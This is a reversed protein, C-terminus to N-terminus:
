SDLASGQPKEREGTGDDVPHADKLLYQGKIVVRDGDELGHTVQVYEREEIGVEIPTLYAMGEEIRYVFSHGQQYFVAEMPIALANADERATLTVDASMGPRLQRDPNPVEVVVETTRTTVSLSPAVRSVRGEFAENTGTTVTAPRGTVALRLEREPIYVVVQAPDMDVITLIPSSPSALAGPDTHRAQVWGTLPSVIQTDAVNLQAEELAANMREVEAAAVEVDAAAAARAAQATDLQQLMGVGNDALQKVRDFDRRAFELRAESKKQQARALRVNAEAQKQREVFEADDIAVLPTGQSVFDGFDVHIYRIIGSIRPAISVTEDAAVSGPYTITERLARREVEAVEVRVPERPPAFGAEANDDAFYSNSLWYSAAVVAAAIIAFFSKKLM